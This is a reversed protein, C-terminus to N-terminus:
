MRNYTERSMDKQLTLRGASLYLSAVALKSWVTDTFPTLTEVREVLVVGQRFNSGSVSTKCFTAMASSPTCCHFALLSVAARNGLMVIEVRGDDHIRSIRVVLARETQIASRAVEDSCIASLGPGNSVDLDVLVSEGLSGRSTLYWVLAIPSEPAM